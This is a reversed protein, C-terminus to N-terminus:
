GSSTPRPRRHGRTPPGMLRNAEQPGLRRALVGRVLEGQRNEALRWAMLKSVSLSDIPTWPEPEIGLM